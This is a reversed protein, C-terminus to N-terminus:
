TKIGAESKLIEAKKILDEAFKELKEALEFLTGNLSHAIAKEHLNKAIKKLEDAVNELENAEFICRENEEQIKEEIGQVVKNMNTKIKM